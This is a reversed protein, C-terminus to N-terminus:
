RHVKEAPTCLSPRPQYRSIDRVLARHCDCSKRTHKRRWRGGQACSNAFLVVVAISRTRPLQLKGFLRSNRLRAQRAPSAENREATSTGTQVFSTHPSPPWYSQFMEGPSTQKDVLQLRKKVQGDETQGVNVYEFKQWKVQPAEDSFATEEPFLKLKDVGSDVRM